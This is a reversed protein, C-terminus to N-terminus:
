PLTLMKSITYKQILDYREHVILTGSKFIMSIVSNNRTSAYICDDSFTFYIAPSRLTAEAPPQDFKMTDTNLVKVYVKLGASYM